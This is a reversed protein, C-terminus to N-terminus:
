RLYKVIIVLHKNAKLLIEPFPDGRRIWITWDIDKDHVLRGRYDRNNKM